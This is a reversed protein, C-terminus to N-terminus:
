CNPIFACVTGVKIFYEENIENNISSKGCIIKCIIFLINVLEHFKISYKDSPNELRMIIIPILM